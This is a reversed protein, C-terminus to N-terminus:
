VGGNMRVGAQARVGATPFTLHTDAEDREFHIGGSSLIRRLTREGFRVADTLPRSEMEVPEFAM